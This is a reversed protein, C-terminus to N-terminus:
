MMTLNTNFNVQMFVPSVRRLIDIRSLSVWEKCPEGKAIKNKDTPAKLCHIDSPHM